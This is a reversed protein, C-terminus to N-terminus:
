AVAGTCIPQGVGVMVEIDGLTQNAPCDYLRAMAPVPKMVDADDAAVPQGTLVTLTDVLLIRKVTGTESVLTALAVSIVAVTAGLPTPM